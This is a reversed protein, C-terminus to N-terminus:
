SGVVNDTPTKDDRLKDSRAKDGDKIDEINFINEFVDRMKDITQKSFLGALGSIAAIGFPDVNVPSGTLLGARFIIYFLREFGIAMAFVACGLIPYMFPGGEKFMTIINVM